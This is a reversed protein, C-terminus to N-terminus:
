PTLRITGKFLFDDSTVTCAEDKCSEPSTDGVQAFM